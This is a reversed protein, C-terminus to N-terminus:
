MAAQMKLFARESGFESVTSVTTAILIAIIISTIHRKM